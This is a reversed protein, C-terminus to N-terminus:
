PLIDVRAILAVLESQRGVGRVNVIDARVIDGRQACRPCSAGPNVLASSL